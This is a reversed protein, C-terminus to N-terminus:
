IVNTQQYFDSTAPGMNEKRGKQANVYHLTLTCHDGSLRMSSLPINQNISYLILTRFRKYEIVM